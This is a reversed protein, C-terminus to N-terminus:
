QPHLLTPFVHKKVPIFLAADLVRTDDPTTNEIRARRLHWTRRWLECPHPIECDDRSADLLHSLDHLQFLTFLTKWIVVSCNKEPKENWYLVTSSAMLFLETCTQKGWLLWCVLCVLGFQLKEERRNQSLYFFFFLFVDLSAYTDTRKSFQLTYFNAGWIM